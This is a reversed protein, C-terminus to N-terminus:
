DFGYSGNEIGRGKATVVGTKKHQSVAEDLCIPNEASLPVAACLPVPDLDVVGLEDFHVLGAPKYGPGQASKALTLTFTYPNAPGFPNAATLSAPISVRSFVSPCKDCLPDGSEEGVETILGFHGNSFTAPFGLATTLSQGTSVSDAPLSFTTFSLDSAAMLATTVPPASWTSTGNNGTSGNTQASVTASATAQLSGAVLSAPTSFAVNVEFKQGPALQSATCALSSATSGQGCTAPGTVESARYTGTGTAVVFSVHAVTSTGTNEVSAAYGVTGGASISGIAGIENLLVTLTTGGAAGTGAGGTLAALVVLSLAAAACARKSRSGKM